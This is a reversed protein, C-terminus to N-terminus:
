GFPILHVKRPCAPPIQRAIAHLLPGCGASPIKEPLELTVGAPMIVAVGNFASTSHTEGSFPTIVIDDGKQCIVACPTVRGSEVVAQCLVPSGSSPPSTIM